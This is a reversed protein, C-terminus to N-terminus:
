NEDEKRYEYEYWLEGELYCLEDMEAHLHHYIFDEDEKIYIDLGGWDVKFTDIIEKLEDIRELKNKRDLIKTIIDDPLDYFYNM